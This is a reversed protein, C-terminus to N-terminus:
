NGAALRSTYTAQCAATAENLMRAAEDAVAQPVTFQGPKRKVPQQNKAIYEKSASEASVKCAELDANLQAEFKARAEALAQAKARMAEMERRAQEAALQEQQNLHDLYIWTGATVAILLAAIIKKLM